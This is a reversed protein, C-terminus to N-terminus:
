DKYYEVFFPCEPHHISRGHSLVKDLTLCIEEKQAQTLDDKNEMNNLVSRRVSIM